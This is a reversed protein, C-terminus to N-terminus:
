LVSAIYLVFGLALWVAAITYAWSQRRFKVDRIYALKMQEFGLARSLHDETGPLSTCFEAWERRQM